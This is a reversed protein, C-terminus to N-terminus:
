NIVRGLVLNPQLTKKFEQLRTTAKALLTKAEANAPEEQILSALRYRIDLFDCAALPKDDLQTYGKTLALLRNQRKLEPGSASYPTSWSKVGCPCAGSARKKDIDNSLEALKTYLNAQQGNPSAAKVQIDVLERKRKIREDEAKNFDTCRRNFGDIMSVFLNAEKYKKQTYERESFSLLEELTPYDKKTLPAFATSWNWIESWGGIEYTHYYDPAQFKSTSATLFHDLSDLITSEDKKQPL